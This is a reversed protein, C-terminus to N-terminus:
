HTHGSVGARRGLGAWIVIAIAQAARVAALLTGIQNMNLEPFLFTSVRPYTSTSGFSFYEFALRALWVRTFRSLPDPSEQAIKTCRQFERNTM